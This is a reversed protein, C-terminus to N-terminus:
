PQPTPELNPSPHPHPNPNPNPNPNPTPTLRRLTAMLTFIRLARFSRMAALQSLTNVGVLGLIFNVVFVLVMAGDFLNLYSRAYERHGSAFIKVAAELFFIWGFIMNILELQTRRTASLYPNDVSTSLTNGLIMTVIFSRFVFSVCVQQAKGRLRAVTTDAADVAAAAAAAEASLKGLAQQKGSPSARHGAQEVGGGGGKGESLDFDRRAAAGPTLALHWNASVGKASAKASALMRRLSRKGGEGGEMGGKGGQAEALRSTVQLVGAAQREGSGAGQLAEVVGQAQARAARGAKRYLAEAVQQM